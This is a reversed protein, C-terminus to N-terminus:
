QTNIIYNAIILHPQTPYLSNLLDTFTLTDPQINVQLRTPM